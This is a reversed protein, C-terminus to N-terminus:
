RRGNSHLGALIHDAGIGQLRTEEERRRAALIAALPEILGTADPTYDRGDARMAAIELTNRALLKREPTWDVYTAVVKVDRPPRGRAPLKILKGHHEGGGQYEGVWFTREAAERFKSDPPLEDLLALLERSSM